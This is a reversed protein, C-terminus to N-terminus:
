AFGSYGYPGVSEIIGRDIAKYTTHYSLNLIIQSIFENYIKDFFWKRNLFTYLKRDM